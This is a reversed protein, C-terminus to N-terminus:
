KHNTDKVYFNSKMEDRQVCNKDITLLLVPLKSLCSETDKLERGEEREWREWEERERREEEDREEEEYKDEYMRLKLGQKTIINYSLECPFVISNSCKM